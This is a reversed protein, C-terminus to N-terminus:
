APAFFDSYRRFIKGFVFNQIIVFDKGNNILAYYKDVDYPVRKGARDFQTKSRKNLPMYFVTMQKSYGNRETVMVTAYPIAGLISDRKPNDNDYMEANLYDFSSLYKVVGEKYIEGGANTEYGHAPTIEFSDTSFAKLNFSFDPQMPYQVSVQAIDDMNYDFIGTDRWEIEDTFYRVDLRGTFGPIHMVYIKESSASNVEMRMFTGKSDQTTGGVHYVKFPTDEGKRYLEVRVSRTEIEKAANKLATKGVPYDVRIKQLTELLVDMKPQMVKYKGNIKWHDAERRLDAKATNDKLVIREVAAIDDVAFDKDSAITTEEQKQRLLFFVVVAAVALVALYLLNKKM